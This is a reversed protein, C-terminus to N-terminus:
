RGYTFPNFTLISPPPPTYQALDVEDQYSVAFTRLADAAHSSRSHAPKMSFM